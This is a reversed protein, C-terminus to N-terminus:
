FSFCDTSPVEWGSAQHLYVYQLRLFPTRSLLIFCFDLHSTILCLCDYIYMYIHLEIIRYICIHIYIIIYIHHYM